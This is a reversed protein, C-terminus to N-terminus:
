PRIWAPNGRWRGMDQQYFSKTRGKNYMVFYPWGGNPPAEHDTILGIECAFSFAASDVGMRAVSVQWFEREPGSVKACLIRSYPALDVEEKMRDLTELLAVITDAVPALKLYLPYNQSLFIFFTECYSPTSLSGKESKQPWVSQTFAIQDILVQAGTLTVQDPEGDLKIDGGLWNPDDQKADRTIACGGVLEDYHELLRFFHFDFRERAARKVEFEATKLQSQYAKISAFAAVAALMATVPAVSDGFQGMTGISVELLGVMCALVLLYAGIIVFVTRVTALKKILAAGM